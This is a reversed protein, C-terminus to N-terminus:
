PTERAASADWLEYLQKIDEAFERDTQDKKRKLEELIVLSFADPGYQRWENSLAPDPCNKTAAAFAFRNQIGAIDVTAKIFRRGNGSCEVAYIAGTATREKCIIKLQRKRDADM